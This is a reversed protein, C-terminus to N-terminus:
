TGSTPDPEGQPSTDTEIGLQAQIAGTAAFLRQINERVREEGYAKGLMSTIPGNMNVLMGSSQIKSLNEQVRGNWYNRTQDILGPNEELMKNMRELDRATSQLAMWFVDLDARQPKRASEASLSQEDSWMSSFANGASTTALNIKSEIEKTSASDGGGGCSALMIVALLTLAPRIIRTHHM